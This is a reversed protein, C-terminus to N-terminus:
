EGGQDLISKAKEEIELATKNLADVQDIPVNLSRLVDQRREKGKVYARLGTTLTSAAQRLLGNEERAKSRLQFFFEDLKGVERAKRAEFNASADLTFELLDHAQGLSCKNRAIVENFDTKIIAKEMIQPGDIFRMRANVWDRADKEYRDLLKMYKLEQHAVGQEVGESLGIHSRDITACGSGALLAALM